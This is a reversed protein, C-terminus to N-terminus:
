HENTPLMRALACFREDSRLASFRPDVNLFLTWVDRDDYSRQLWGHAADHDGLAAYAAAMHYGCLYIAGSKCELDTLLQSAAENAGTLAYSRALIMQITPLNDSLSLAQRAEDIATELNGLQESALALYAHPAPHSCELECTRRCQAVAEEYRGACYLLWGRISNVPVSLPDIDLAKRNLDLSEARSGRAMLVYAYWHYALSNSANLSIATQFEREAGAWDWNLVLRSWALAVHAEPLGGDTALAKLAADRAAVVAEKPHILGWSTLVIYSEAIGVYPLGYHPARQSAWRFYELARQVNQETRRHWFYRGRLYAEQAEGFNPEKKRPQVVSSQLVPVDLLPAISSVVNACFDLEVDRGVDFSEVWLSAQNRIDILELRLRLADPTRRLRGALILEVALEEGIQPLPLLLRRFRLVSALATIRVRDSFARGFSDILAETIGDALYDHEPNGTANEIPLVALPCHRPEENHLRPIFRYGRGPLTQIFRPNEASDGLADRIKSISRNLSHEFDVFVDDPWLKRRFEERLVVDGPRRVLLALVDFPQKQLKVVHGNKRLEGSRFDIEFNEFRAIQDQSM